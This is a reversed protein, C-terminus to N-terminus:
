EAIAFLGRINVRIEPPTAKITTRLSPGHNQNNPICGRFKVFQYAVFILITENSAPFVNELGVHKTKEHLRKPHTLTYRQSIGVVGLCTPSGSIWKRSRNGPEMFYPLIIKQFSTNIPPGVHKSSYGYNTLGTLLTTGRGFPRFPKYM